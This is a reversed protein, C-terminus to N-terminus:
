GIKKKKFIDIDSDSLDCLSKNIVSSFQYINTFEPDITQKLILFVNIEGLELETPAFFYSLNQSILVHSNEISTEKIM